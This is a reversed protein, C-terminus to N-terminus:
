TNCEKINWVANKHHTGCSDYWSTEKPTQALLVLLLKQNLERTARAILGLFMWRLYNLMSSAFDRCGSLEVYM